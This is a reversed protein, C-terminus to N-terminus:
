SAPPLLRRSSRSSSASPKPRKDNVDIYCWKGECIKALDKILDAKWDLGVGM